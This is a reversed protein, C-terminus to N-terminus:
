VSEVLTDRFRTFVWAGALWAVLGVAAATLWEAPGPVRGSFAVDRYLEVLSAMPNLRLPRELWTPVALGELSYIIPSAFFLLNLLHGVLDRLDRLKVSVASVALAAGGAALLWPVLALPLLWITLPFPHWGAAAALVLAALLVPLALLHHVLHSVVTVAPFIEPPCMVKALLPGNDILTVSADLVTGSFFLWPLLASFLFLPYPDGGPFRPNFIYTFVVAYVALLLLPNLMSWFFGLASARYRANLERRVLVAVLARQRWLVRAVSAPAATM